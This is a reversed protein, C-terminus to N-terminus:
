KGSLFVIDPPGQVGADQMSKKLDASSILEKAKAVDSAEFLILVEGPDDYNCWLHLEKLGAVERASQHAEYVPKWQDFDAVRHRVLMHTM